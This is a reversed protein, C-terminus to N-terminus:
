AVGEDGHGDGHGGKRGTPRVGGPPKRKGGRGSSWKRWPAGSEPSRKESPSSRPCTTPTGGMAWPWPWWPTMGRPVECSERVRSPSFGAMPHVFLGEAVAQLSLQAVAAGLDHEAWLNTKGDYDLARKVLGVALAGARCAWLRNAKVLCGLIANFGEEEERRAVLFRWPQENYASPAWRAAEFIRRLVEPAVGQPGFARPSWRRRVVDVLGIEGSVPKEM